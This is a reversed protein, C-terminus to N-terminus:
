ETDEVPLQTPTLVLDYETLEFDNIFPTPAGLQITDDVEDSSTSTLDLTGPTSSAPQSIDLTSSAIDEDVDLSFEDDDSSKSNVLARIEGIPDSNPIKIPKPAPSSSLPTSIGTAPDFGQIVVDGNDYKTDYVLVFRPNEIAGGDYGVITRIEGSELSYVKAEQKKSGVVTWLVYGEEIVPAVDQSENETLQQTLKGDFYFIEWDKGDWTQWVVGETSVKPEMNNTRSYTLQTETGKRIDYLIIQHRGEVMRQWVVQLSSPDYYPATDDYNNDTIQRVEDRTTKLFIEMNGSKGKDAYAVSEDDLGVTENVACHYSGNGVSVCSQRSFQYFNDETVIAQTEVPSDKPTTTAKPEKPTKPLTEEVQVPGSTEVEAPTSEDVDEVTESGTTDQIDDEPLTEDQDFIVEEDELDETSQSDTGSLDLADESAVNELPPNVETSEDAQVDTSSDTEPESVDGESQAFAKNIPQIFLSLLLLVTVLISIRGVFVFDYLWARNRIEYNLQRNKPAM